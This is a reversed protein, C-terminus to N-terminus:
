AIINNIFFEVGLITIDDEIDPNGKQINLKDIIYNISDSISADTEIAEITVLFGYDSMGQQSYESLGDTYCILKSDNKIRMRGINISPIEDLMGIGVCGDNLLFTEGKEIDYLVPPNHGANIYTLVHTFSNYKAVFLTIFHQGNSNKIIIENLNIVLKKLSTKNSFYAKLHAQFNSMLLAASMGKGSVDAICFFVENKSIREFDYYDGGVEYHPMYFPHLHFYKNKPFSDINPVLMEQIKSATELEKKLREQEMNKEVLRKNEIDVVIINTLTQIFQLHKISPSTGIEETDIYGILVYALIRKNHTVPIIFDFLYFKSHKNDLTIEITKFKILDDEVSINEYQEKAVGARLTLDWKKNYTFLLVRKINLEKTLITEYTRLLEFTPLNQNIAQTLNLLTKLKFNCFRLRKLSPSQKM